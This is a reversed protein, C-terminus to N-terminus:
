PDTKGYNKAALALDKIDIKGNGDFDFNPNYRSDPYMSGYSKAITSLDKIDVKGDPWRNLGTVDGVMAIAVVYNRVNDTTDTESPVQTVYANVTYNGKAFGTTEWVSTVSISTRAELTTSLTQLILSNVKVILDFTESYEGYNIVRIPINMTRGQGIITQYKGVSTIGIDHPGAYPKMLPYHDINSADIVYPTDAIGDSGPVNQSPGRYNDVEAHDKWYNGGSTYGGNWTNVSNEVYAQYLNDTFSNHLISNTSSSYLGIGIPNNTVNNNTVINNSSYYLGIGEYSNGMISNLTITNSSSDFLQIGDVCGSIRMNKVTVNLTTQLSLGNATGDGEVRYGAGDVIINSREVIISDVVNGILRYTIGDSSTIPAVPPSISGDANIYITGAAKASQINVSSILTCFLLALVLIVLLPKKMKKERGGMANKCSM